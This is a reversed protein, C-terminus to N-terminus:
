GGKERDLKGAGDQTNPYEANAKDRRGSKANSVAGVKFKKMTAADSIDIMRTAFGRKKDAASLASVSTAIAKMGATKYKNTLAERNTILIKDPM